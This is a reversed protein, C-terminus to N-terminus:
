DLEDQRIEVHIDQRRVHKRVGLWLIGLGTVFAMTLGMATLWSAM